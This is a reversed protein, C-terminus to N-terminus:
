PEVLAVGCAICHRWGFEVETQCRHCRLAQLHQGCHPCFHAVRDTPLSGGCFSCPESGDPELGLDMDPMESPLLPEATSREPEPGPGPEPPAYTRVARDGLVFATRDAALTIVADSESTLVGFDPHLSALESRFRAASEPPMTRAYGEDGAVLRLLLQEYEDSTVVGLHRRSSRYPVISRMLDIVPIAGHLRSPETAALNTVLLHFLRELDNM